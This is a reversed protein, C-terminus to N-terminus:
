FLLSKQEPVLVTNYKDTTLFSKGVHIAVDAGM